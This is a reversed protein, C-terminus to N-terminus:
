LTSINQQIDKKSRDNEWTCSKSLHLAQTLLARSIGKDREVLLSHWTRGTCKQYKSVQIKISKIFISLLIKFVDFYM